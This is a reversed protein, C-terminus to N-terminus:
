WECGSEAVSYGDSNSEGCCTEENGEADVYPNRPAGLVFSGCGYEEGSDNM